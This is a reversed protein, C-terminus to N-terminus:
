EGSMRCCGKKSKGRKLFLDVNELSTIERCKPLSNLFRRGYGKTKIRPDLIAVMGRDQRTRILRGFGQKLRLAAEPVSYEIFANGGSREIAEIKAETIPDDPVAFPLKVIIVCSLSEGQVDVGEWFSATAFLISNTEQKFQDLLQQKPMDGQKLASDVEAQRGATM